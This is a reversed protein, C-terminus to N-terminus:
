EHSQNFEELSRRYDDVELQLNAKLARLKSNNQKHHALKIKLDEYALKRRQACEKSCKNNLFKKRDNREEPTLKDYEKNSLKNRRKQSSSKMEQTLPKLNQETSSVNPSTQSFKPRSRRKGAKPITGSPTSAENSMRTSRLQYKPREKSETIDSSSFLVSESRTCYQVQNNYYDSGSAITSANTEHMLNSTEDYQNSQPTNQITNFPNIEYESDCRITLSHFSPLDINDDSPEHFNVTDYKNNTAHNEIPQVTNLISRAALKLPQKWEQLACAENIPLMTQERVNRSALDTSIDSSLLSCGNFITNLKADQYDPFQSCRNNPSDVTERQQSYSASQPHFTDQPTQDFASEFTDIQPTQRSQDQQKM